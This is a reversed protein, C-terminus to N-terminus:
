NERLVKMFNEPSIILIDRYKELDLLDKDRSVIYDASAAVACAIIMNDKPDREVVFLDPLQRVVTSVKRIQTIFVDVSATSYNYRDRIHDKELLVRRIEQLIEEATYLHTKEQCQYILEATLGATLFASVAVVSDLVVRLKRPM